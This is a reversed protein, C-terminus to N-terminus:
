LLFVPSLREFGGWDETGLGGARGELGRGEKGPCAVAQRSGLCGRGTPESGWQERVTDKM